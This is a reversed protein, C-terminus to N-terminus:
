KRRKGAAVLEDRMEAKPETTAVQVARAEKWDNKATARVAEIYGDSETETEDPTTKGMLGLARIAPDLCSAAAQFDRSTEAKGEALESLSKCREYIENIRDEVAIKHRTEIIDTFTGPNPPQMREPYKGVHGMHAHKSVERWAQKRNIQKDYKRGIAAYSM